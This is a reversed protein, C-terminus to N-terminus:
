PRWRARLRAKTLSERLGGNKLFEQELKRLQQSLLYTTIKILGIIVNASIAPDPYM